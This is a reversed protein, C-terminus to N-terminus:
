PKRWQLEIWDQARRIAQKIREELSVWYAITYKCVNFKKALTRQSFLGSKYLFQIKKIQRPMLKRRADDKPKLHFKKM